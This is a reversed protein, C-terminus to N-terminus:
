HLVPPTREARLIKIHQLVSQSYIIFFLVKYHLSNRIHGLVCSAPCVGNKPIFHGRYNKDANKKVEQQEAEQTQRLGRACNRVLCHSLSPEKGGRTSESPANKGYLRTVM